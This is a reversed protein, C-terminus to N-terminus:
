ILDKRIWWWFIDGANSLNFSISYSRHLKLCHSNAKQTVNWTQQWGSFKSGHCRSTVVERNNQFEISAFFTKTRASTVYCTEVRELNSWVFKAESSELKLSVRNSNNPLIIFYNSNYPSSKKKAFHPGWNKLLFCRNFSIVGTIPSLNPTWFFCILIPFVHGSIGTRARAKIQRLAVTTITTRFFTRMKTLFNVSEYGKKQHFSM